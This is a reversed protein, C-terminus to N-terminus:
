LVHKNKCGTAQRHQEYEKRKRISGMLSLHFIIPSSAQNYKLPNSRLENCTEEILPNLFM